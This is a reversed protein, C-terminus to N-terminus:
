QTILTDLMTRIHSSNWDAPGFEELYVKGQKDLIFTAPLSTTNIQKPISTNLAYTPLNYEKSEYFNDVVKKTDTTLFVFVVRDKYDDYLKQLSPMEARCPACWTAWHNIFVVKGKTTELNLDTANTIGQLDVNYTDLAKRENVATESPPFIFSKVYTIGETLKAKTGLGYPTFLFLIFGYFLINYIHKKKITM